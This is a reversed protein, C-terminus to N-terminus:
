PEDAGGRKMLAEDEFRQLRLRLRAVAEQPSMTGGSLAKEEERMGFHV